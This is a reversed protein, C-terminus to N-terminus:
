SAILKEITMGPRTGPMVIISHEAKSPSIAPVLGAM